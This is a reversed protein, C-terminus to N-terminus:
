CLLAASGSSIDLDDFSLMVMLPSMFNYYYTKMIICASMATCLKHM